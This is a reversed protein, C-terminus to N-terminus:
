TNDKVKLRVPKKIFDTKKKGWDNNPANPNYKKLSSRELLWKMADVRIRLKQLGLQTPETDDILDLLGDGLSEEYVRYAKNYLDRFRLKTNNGKTDYIIANDQLWRYFAPKSPMGSMACIKRVSVGDCRLDYIRQAMEINLIPPRGAQSIEQEPISTQKLKSKAM